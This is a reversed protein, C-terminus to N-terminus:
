LGLYKDIVNIIINMDEKSYRQDIPLPVMYNSLYAEFSDSTVRKLVDKWWHPVYIKNSVLHERLGEKEILLPYVMPAEFDHSLDLKNVDKLKQHLYYFNRERKVRVDEYDISKLIRRTLKSMGMAKFNDFREENRLNDLYAKNAGEEIRKFLHNSHPYSIDVELDEVEIDEKILYGGDSVGFFKRPSYLNYAGELPSSYFSQTNDLLLNKHNESLEKIIDKRGTGFYNVYLFAEDKNSTKIDKPRFDEDMYYLEVDIGLADPAQLMSTCLYHPMYVKKVNSKKLAYYIAARGTNLRVVSVGNYYEEKIPLEIEMYGGIEKSNEM